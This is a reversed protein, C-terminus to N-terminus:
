RGSSSHGVNQLARDLEDLLSHLSDLKLREGQLGAEAESSKAQWRQENATAQELHAKLQPLVEVEIVKQDRPNQNRSREQETQEIQGAWKQKESAVMALAARAEDVQKAARLVAADQLQLRYLVIQVRQAAVTTTQLDRRLQRVEDLLARLTQSDTTQQQGVCTLSLMIIGVPWMLKRM